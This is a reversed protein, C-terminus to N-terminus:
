IKKTKYLVLFGVLWALTLISIIQYIRKTMVDIDHKTNKLRDLHEFKDLVDIINFGQVLIIRYSENEPGTVTVGSNGALDVDKYIYEPVLFEFGALVRYDGDYKFFLERLVQGDIYKLNKIEDSFELNNDITLYHWIAYEANENKIDNLAKNALAPNYHKNIEKKLTRAMGFEASCNISLDVLIKQWNMYFPDNNDKVHADNLNFIFDDEISNALINTLPNIKNINKLDDEILKNNDDNYENDIKRKIYNVNTNNMDHAEDVSKDIYKNIITWERQLKTYKIQEVITLATISSITICLLLIVLITYYKHELMSKFYRKM